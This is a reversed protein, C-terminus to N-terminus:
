GPSNGTEPTLVVQGAYALGGGFGFLLVPSGPAFTKAEVLKAYALPVSAASTNGSVRVDTAVVTDPGLGLKKALPEIIRLNAQHPVFGALQEPELGAARCARRALEPLETVAWRYVAQGDQHFRPPSGDIVVTHGLEPVSGALGPLVSPQEGEAAARLLMGGAGDGVLVCTRRDTWDAVASLKEAALVLATRASGVRIANDAMILAHGFGSCATNVDYGVPRPIGLRAAVQFATPPSSVEATTTAVVVLDVEDPAVGANALVRAGAHTGLDAVTQDDSAIRREEIGVRSRIWEDSTEVLKTLDHNTLVQDPQYYGTGLVVSGPVLSGPVVSGPLDSSASPAPRDSRDSANRAATM